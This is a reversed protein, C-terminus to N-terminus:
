EFAGIRNREELMLAILVYSTAAAALLLHGASMTPTAWLAVIIGPYIPQRLLRHHVPPVAEM